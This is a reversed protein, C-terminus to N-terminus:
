YSLIGILVFIGRCVFHLYIGTDLLQQLYISSSLIMDVSTYIGLLERDMGSSTFDYGYFNLGLLIKQRLVSLEPSLGLVCREMWDIPATPGPSHGVYVYTYSFFGNLLCSM